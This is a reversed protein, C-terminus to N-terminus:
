VADHLKLGALPQLWYLKDQKPIVIGVAAHDHSVLAIVDVKVIYPAAQAHLQQELGM